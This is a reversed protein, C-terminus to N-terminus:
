LWTTAVAAKALPRYYSGTAFDQIKVQIQAFLTHFLTQTQIATQPSIEYACAM